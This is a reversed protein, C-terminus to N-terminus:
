SKIGRGIATIVGNKVVVDRNPLVENKDMPIINVNKFVIEKERNDVTQQATCSLVSFVTLIFIAYKM